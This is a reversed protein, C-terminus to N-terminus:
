LWGRRRFLTFMYIASATMALIVIIFFVYGQIPLLFPEAFQAFGLDFLGTFFSLPLFIMSFITLRNVVSVLKNSEQTQWMDLVNSSLDRQSDIVDYIRLLREYLHRFLDRTEEQRTLRPEGIVNSVVERQPAVMQRLHILQQKIRYVPKMNQGQIGGDLLKEELENLQNSIRDILPYYADVVYQICLYLFYGVGGEWGAPNQAVRNYADDITTTDARRVTIFFRDGVICHVEKGMVTATKITPQFMSLFLYDPYVLLAPRRDDRRLDKVVTTGLRFRKELWLLEDEEPDIVDLWLTEGAEVAAELNERSLNRRITWAYQPEPTPSPPPPAAAPASTGDLTAQVSDLRAVGAHVAVGGSASIPSPSGEDPTATADSVPITTWAACLSRIM